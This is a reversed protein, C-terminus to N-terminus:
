VRHRFGFNERDVVTPRSFCLPSDGLSYTIIEIDGTRERDKARRFHAVDSAPEIGVAYRFVQTSEAYLCEGCVDPPIVFVSRTDGEECLALLVLKSAPANICGAFVDACFESGRM